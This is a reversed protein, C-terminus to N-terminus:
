IREWQLRVPWFLRDDVNDAIVSNHIFVLVWEHADFGSSCHDLTHYM